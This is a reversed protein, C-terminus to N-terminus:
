LTVHGNLEDTKYNTKISVKRMLFCLGQVPSLSKLIFVTVSIPNSYHDLLPLWSNNQM